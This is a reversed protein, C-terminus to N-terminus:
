WGFLRGIIRDFVRPPLLFRPIIYSTVLKNQIAYRTRPKRKRYIRYIRKAMFEPEPADVAIKRTYEIFRKLAPGYESNMAAESVESKEWIPTKVPGAGIVVVDIGHLMLERRLSDSFGELAFKSACYASMFPFGIKGSVSSINIIRGPKGSFDTKAGLLPLFTNTIEVVGYLNVEFQRRYDDVTNYMVPGVVAIGANNILGQLGAGELENEVKQYATRVASANTVDFVMPEFKPGFIESLKEADADKRVSGFVRFGKSIFLKTLHYGIGTSVGTILINKM